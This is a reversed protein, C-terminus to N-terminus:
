RRPDDLDLDVQKHVAFKWRTNPGQITLTTGDRDLSKIHWTLEGGAMAPTLTAWDVSGMRYLDLAAREGELGYKGCELVTVEVKIPTM